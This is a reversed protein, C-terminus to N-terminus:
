IHSPAEPSCWRCSGVAMSGGALEVVSSVWDGVQMGGGGGWEVAGLEFASGGECMGRLRGVPADGPQKSNDGSGVHRVDNALRIKEQGRRLGHIVGKDMQVALLERLLWM